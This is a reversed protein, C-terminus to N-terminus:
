EGNSNGRINNILTELDLLAEELTGGVHLHRVGADSEGIVLVATGAMNDDQLGAAGVEGNFGRGSMHMVTRQRQTRCSLGMGRAWAHARRLEKKSFVALLEPM